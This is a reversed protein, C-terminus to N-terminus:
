TMNSTWLWTRQWLLLFVNSFRDMCGKISTKTTARVTTAFQHSRSVVNHLTLNVLLNRRKPASSFKIQLWRWFFCHRSTICNSTVGNIFSLLRKWWSPCSGYCRVSADEVNIVVGLCGCPYSHRQFQRQQQSKRTHIDSYQSIMLLWLLSWLGCQHPFSSSIISGLKTANNCHFERNSMMFYKWVTHIGNWCCQFIKKKGKVGDALGSLCQIDDYITAQM